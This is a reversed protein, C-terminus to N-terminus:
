AGETDVRQPHQWVMQCSPGGVPARIVIGGGTVGGAPHDTLHQGGREEERTTEALPVMLAPGQEAVVLTLRISGLRALRVDTSPPVMTVLQTIRLIRVLFSRNEVPAHGLEAGCSRPSLTHGARCLSPESAGALLPVLLIGVALQCGFAGGVCRHLDSELVARFDASRDRLGSEYATRQKRGSRISRIRVPAM